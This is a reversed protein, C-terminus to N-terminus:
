LWITSMWTSWSNWCSAWSITLLISVNMM